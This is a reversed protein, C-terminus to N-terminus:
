LFTIPVSGEPQKPQWSSPCHPLILKYDLCEPKSYIGTKPSEARIKEQM